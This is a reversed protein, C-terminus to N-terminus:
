PHSPERRLPSRRRTRQPPSPPPQRESSSPTSYVHTLKPRKPEKIVPQRMEKVDATFDLVLEIQDSEDRHSNSYQVVNDLHYCEAAIVNRRQAVGIRVHDIPATRVDDWFTGQEGGRTTRAPLMRRIDCGSEDKFTAERM